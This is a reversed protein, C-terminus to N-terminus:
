YTHWLKSTERNKIEKTILETLYERVEKNVCRRRYAWISPGFLTNISIPIVAVIVIPALWGLESAHPGSLPLSGALLIGAPIAFTFPAYRCGDKFLKKM